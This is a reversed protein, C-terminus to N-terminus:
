EIAEIALGNQANDVGDHVHVAGLEDVHLELGFPLTPHETDQDLFGAGIGLLEGRLIGRDVEFEARSDSAVETRREIDLIQDRVRIMQLDTGRSDLPCKALLTVVDSEHPLFRLKLKGLWQEALADEDAHEIADGLPADPHQRRFSRYLDRQGDDLSRPEDEVEAGTTPLWVRLLPLM